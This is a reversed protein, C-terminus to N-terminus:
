DRRLRGGAKVSSSATWKRIISSGNSFSSIASDSHVNWATRCSIEDKKISLMWYPCVLVRKNEITTAVCVHSAIYGKKAEDDEFDVENKMSTKTVWLLYASEGGFNNNRGGTESKREHRYSTRSVPTLGSFSVMKRLFLRVIISQRLWHHHLLQPVQWRRQM